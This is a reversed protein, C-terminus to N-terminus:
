RVIKLYDTVGSTSHKRVKYYANGQTEHEERDDDLDDLTDLTAESDVTSEGDDEQIFHDDDPEEACEVVDGFADLKNHLIRVKMASPGYGQDPSTLPSPDPASDVTAVASAMAEAIASPSRAKDINTTNTCAGSQPRISTKRDPKGGRIPGVARILDETKISNNYSESRRGLNEYFLGQYKDIELAKEWPCEYVVHGDGKITNNSINKTHRLAAITSERESERLVQLNILLKVFVSDKMVHGDGVSPKVEGSFDFELRGMSPLDNLFDINMVFPKGNFLENRFSSWNGKQSTDGTLGYGLPSDSARKHNVSESMSYLAMVANRDNENAMDLHYYGNYRGLMPKIFQGLERKLKAQKIRDNNVVHSVIDRAHDISSMQRLLVSLIQTSSKNSKVMASCITVADDYHIKTMRLTALDMAEPDPTAKAAETIYVRDCGALTRFVDKTVFGDSVEIALSGVDPPVFREWKNDTRRPDIVPIGFPWTDDSPDTRTAIVPIRQIDLLHSELENHIKRLFKLFDAIEIAGSGDPDYNAMTERLRSDTLKIGMSRMLTDLEHMDIGGSDDLDVEKFLKLALTIDGSAAIMNKMQAVVELQLKDLTEERNMQVYGLELTKIKNSGAMHHAHPDSSTRVHAGDGMSNTWHAMEATKKLLGAANLIKGSPDYEVKTFVLSSHYAVLHMLIIAIAKEYPDDMKLVYKGCLRDFNFWCAQDRITVNCQHATVKVRGACVLPIMMLASAGREGIPNGDLSVLKLTKNEIIGACITFAAVADFNNNGVLLTRLTNNRLIASGLALGGERGLANYSLNLHLLSTNGKLARCLAGGSEGRLMNWSLNLTKLQCDKKQFWKAFTIGASDCGLKELKGIKNNSVDLFNLKSVHNEKLLSVVFLQCATDDIECHHMSLKEIKCSQMELYSCMAKGTARGVTNTSLDLEILSTITSISTVISPLSTDTLNNDSLLMKEVEPMREISVALIKGMKDGMGQHMLNIQKSDTGKQLVLSARPNLGERLCLDIYKSRPSLQLEVEQGMTPMHKGPRRAPIPSLDRSSDNMAKSRNKLRNDTKGEEDSDISGFFLSSKTPSKSTPAQLYNEPLTRSRLRRLARRNPSTLGHDDMTIDQVVTLKSPDAHSYQAIQRQRGLTQFKEYFAGRGADIADMDREGKLPKPIAKKPSFINENIDECNETSISATGVVSKDISLNADIDLHKQFVRHRKENTSPREVFHTPEVVGGRRAM